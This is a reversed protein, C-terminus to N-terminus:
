SNKKVLNKKISSLFVPCIIQFIKEWQIDNVMRLILNQSILCIIRNSKILTELPYSIYSSFINFTFYTYRYGTIYFYLAFIHILFNTYIYKNGKSMFYYIICVKIPAITLRWLPFLNLRLAICHLLWRHCFNKPISIPRSITGQQNRSQFDSVLFEQLTNVKCYTIKNFVVM